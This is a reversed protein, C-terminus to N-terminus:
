IELESLLAPTNMNSRLNSAFPPPKYTGIHDLDSSLRLSEDHYYTRPSIVSERINIGRDM